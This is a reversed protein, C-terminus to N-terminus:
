DGHRRRRAPSRGVPGGTAGGMDRMHAARRRRGHHMQRGDARGTDGFEIVERQCTSLRHRRKPVVCDWERRLTAGNRQRSAGALSRRGILSGIAEEEEEAVSQFERNTTPCSSSRIRWTTGDISARVLSLCVGGLPCAAAGRGNHSM